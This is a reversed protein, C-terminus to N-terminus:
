LHVWRHLTQRTQQWAEKLGWSLKLQNFMSEISWREGYAEIAALWPSRLSPQYVGTAALGCQKGPTGQALPFVFYAESRPTWDNPALYPAAVLKRLQQTTSPSWSPQPVLLNDFASDIKPVPIDWFRDRPRLCAQLVKSRYRM